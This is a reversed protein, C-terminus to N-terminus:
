GLSANAAALIYSSSFVHFDFIELRCTLLPSPPHGPAVESLYNHLRSLKRARELADQRKLFLESTAPVGVESLSLPTLNQFDHSASLDHM